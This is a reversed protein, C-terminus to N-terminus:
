HECRKGQLYAADEPNIGRVVSLTPLWSGGTGGGGARGLSAGRLRSIPRQDIDHFLQQRKAVDM